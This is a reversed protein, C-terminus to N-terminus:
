PLSGPPLSFKSQKQSASSCSARGVAAAFESFIPCAGPSSLLEPHWQVGLMARDHYAIAEIVGDPSRAAVTARGPFAPDVAQHHTSNVGGDGPGRLWEWGPECVLEHASQAPDTAQEHDLVDVGRQSADARIDQLLRGGLAVAMAQMGGCLGLTPMRRRVCEGLLALELGTRAEDARTEWLAPQGYHKPHIDFNGGTIVVGGVVSLILDLQAEGPALLIPTLGVARLHAVVREGVFVEPRGPRVNPGAGPTGIRHDCTVAVLM